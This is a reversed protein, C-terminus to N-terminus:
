TKLHRDSKIITSLDWYTLVILKLLLNKYITKDLELVLNQEVRYKIPATQPM